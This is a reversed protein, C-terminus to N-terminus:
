IRNRTRLRRPPRKIEEKEELKKEEGGKEELKKEEGEKEELKKELEALKTSFEERLASVESKIMSTETKIKQAFLFEIKATMIMMAMDKAREIQTIAEELKTSVNDFKKSKEELIKVVSHTYGSVTELLIGGLDVKRGQDFFGGWIHSFTLMNSFLIKIWQDTSSSLIAGIPYSNYNFANQNLVDEPNAASLTFQFPLIKLFDDQTLLYTGALYVSVGMIFMNVVKQETSLEQGPYNVVIKELDEPTFLDSAAKIKTILDVFDSSEEPGVDMHFSIYSLNDLVNEILLDKFYLKLTIQSINNNKKNPAVGVRLFPLTVNDVGYGLVLGNNTIVIDLPQISM